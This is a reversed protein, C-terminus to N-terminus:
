RCLISNNLMQGHSQLSHIHHFILPLDILTDDDTKIVLKAQPCYNTIWRVASIAKYSMNHYHDVYNQQIIDHYFENEFEVQQHIKSSIKPNVHEIAGIFFGMKAKYGPPFSHPNAWTERLTLRKRQQHPATHVWIFLNTDQDCLGKNAIIYEFQPDKIMNHKQPESEAKKKSVETQNNTQNDTQNTIKQGKFSGKDHIHQYADKLKEIIANTTQNTNPSNTTVTEEAAECVVRDSILTSLIGVLASITLVSWRTNM